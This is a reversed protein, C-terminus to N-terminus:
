NTAKNEDDKEVQLSSLHTSTEWVCCVCFFCLSPQDKLPNSLPPAFVPIRDTAELFPHVM